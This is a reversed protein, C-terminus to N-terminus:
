KKGGTEGRRRMARTERARRDAPLSNEWIQAGDEKSPDPGSASTRTTRFDSSRADSRCSRRAPSRARMDRVRQTHQHICTCVFMCVYIHINKYISIYEAIQERKTRTCLFRSDSERQKKWNRKLFFTDRKRFISLLRGNRTFKSISPFNVIEFTNKKKSKRKM